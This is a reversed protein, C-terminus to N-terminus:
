RFQGFPSFLPLYRSKPEIAAWGRKLTMKLEAVPCWSWRAGLWWWSGSRVTVDAVAIFEDNFLGGVGLVSAPMWLRNAVSLESAAVRAAGRAFWSAGTEPVVEGVSM